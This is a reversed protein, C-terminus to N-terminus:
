SNCYSLTRKSRSQSYIFASVVECKMIDVNSIEANLDFHVNQAAAIPSNENNNNSQTHHDPIPIEELVIHSQYSEDADQNNRAFVFYLFKLIFNHIYYMGKEVRLSFQSDFHFLM